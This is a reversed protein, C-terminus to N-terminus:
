ALAPNAMVVMGQGENKMLLFGARIAGSLMDEYNKAGPFHTHVVRYAEEYPLKGRRRIIEILKDMQIAEETKGINAFVKNMTPELDGLMKHALQLEYEDIVLSDGLSAALVMALKFTHTQKRAAYGELLTDGLRSDTDKWFAEYIPRYWNRAAPTITFPGALATAIHELDQILATRLAFDQTSVVEDVFPIYREKTNQFVFVCRSTFGGGVVALPMNDAIWHPTTCGLMNVWPANISDNGSTKTVKEISKRGDWLEIYFNIMQRDQPDILCGLESAVLTIASMPLYEDGFQFEEGSAAFAEALAQWTVVDPGFKIGPIQKLLDMGIDVTTSKSVVGPPAVFIIYFSPYWVFKRMDLWVKRRLAGALVSVATWFHMARPAETVAAYDLYSTIWDAFQRAM